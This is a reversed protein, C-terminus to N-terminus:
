VFQKGAGEKGTTNNMTYYNDNTHQEHKSRGCLAESINVLQLVQITAYAMLYASYVGIVTGIVVVYKHRKLVHKHDLRREGDDVREKLSELEASQKIEAKVVGSVVGLLISYSYATVALCLVCFVVIGLYYVFQASSSSQLRHVCSATSNADLTCEDDIWLSRNQIGAVMNAFTMTSSVIWIGAIVLVVRKRTVLTSYRLPYCIFVYENLTISLLNLITALNAFRLLVGSYQDIRISLLSQDSNLDTKLLKIAFLISSIGKITDILTFDLIMIYFAHSFAKRRRALLSYLFISNLVIALTGLTVYSIGFGRATGEWDWVSPYTYAM